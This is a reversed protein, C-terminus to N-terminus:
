YGLELLSVGKCEYWYVLQLDSASGVSRATYPTPRHGESAPIAPEFGFGGSPM